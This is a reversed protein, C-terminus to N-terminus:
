ITTWCSNQILHSTRVIEFGIKQQQYSCFMLESLELRVWCTRQMNSSWEVDNTQDYLSNNQIVKTSRLNTPHHNTKMYRKYRRYRRGRLFRVLKRCRMDWKDGKPVNQYREYRRVRLFRVLKRRRMDWKPREKQRVLSCALSGLSFIFGWDFPKMSMMTLIWTTLDIM